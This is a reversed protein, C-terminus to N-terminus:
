SNVVESLIVAQNNAVGLFGGNVQFTSLREDKNRVTINGHGLTVILPAHNALVGLYGSESPAVLSAIEDEYIKKDPTIMSLKYTKEM